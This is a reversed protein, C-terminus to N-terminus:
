ADTYRSKFYYKYLVGFVANIVTFNLIKYKEYM